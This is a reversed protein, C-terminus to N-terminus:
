LDNYKIKIILLRVKKKVLPLTAALTESCQQLAANIQALNSNWQGFDSPTAIERMRPPTKLPNNKTEILSQKTKESVFEHLRKSSQRFNDISKCLNLLAKETLQNPTPSNELATSVIRLCAITEKL